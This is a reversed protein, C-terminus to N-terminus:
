RGDNIYGGADEKMKIIAYQVCRAQHRADDLANHYVGERPVVGTNFSAIDYVTRTDRTNFFKWPARMGAAACAAEWLVTDFNSGQSWVKEAGIRNFWANFDLVVQPLAQPDEMFKDIAEPSQQDWWKRTAEDVTLGCELCSNHEINRYFSFDEPYQVTPDTPDFATAGISRIVSGPRTGFTELDLMIHM